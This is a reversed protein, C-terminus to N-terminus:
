TRPGLTARRNVADAIKDLVATKITQETVSVGIDDLLAELMKATGPQKYDIGADKCLAAIIVLLTTSKNTDAARAQPTDKPPRPEPPVASELIKLIDRRLMFTDAVTVIVPERLDGYYTIEERLENQKFKPEIAFEVSCQGYKLLSQKAMLETYLFTYPDPWAGHESPDTTSFSVNDAPANILGYLDIRGESGAILLTDVDCDLMQAANGLRVYTTDIKSM